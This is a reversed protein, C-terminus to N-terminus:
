QFSGAFAHGSRGIPYWNETTLAIDNLLKASIGTNGGNVESAFWHLEKETTIQYVGSINVPESCESEKWVGAQEATKIVKTSAEVYGAADASSVRVTLVKGEDSPLLTYEAKDAGSIPNKGVYWQYKLNTVKESSYFVAKLTKGVVAAGEIKVTGVLGEVKETEATLLGEATECVM